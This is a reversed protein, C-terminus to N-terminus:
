GAAAFTGHRLHLGLAAQLDFNPDRALAADAATEFTAGAGLREVFIGDAEPIQRTVVTMDPRSILATEGATLDIVPVDAIDPQNVSWITMIPFRSGILRVAPHLTFSLHGVSDGAAVLAAPDLVGADAAFYAEGRAWELRAIDSLYPLRHDEARRSIFSPFEFGYVSLHAARPPAAVVFTRALATFYDAGVIRRVVPFAAALVDILSAQVTNRYVDIRTATSGRPAAVITALDGDEDGLVAARFCRELDLAM